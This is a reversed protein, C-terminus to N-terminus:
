FKLLSKPKASSKTPIVKNLLSSKGDQKGDLGLGLGLNKSLSSKEDQKGDLGLGLGLNKSLEKTVDSTLKNLNTLEDVLFSCTSAGISKVSAGLLSLQCM